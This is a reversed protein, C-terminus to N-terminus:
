GVTSFILVAKAKTNISLQYEGNANTTTGVSTGKLQVSVGDLPNGTEDTVRGKIVRSITQATTEQAALKQTVSLSATSLVVMSLFLQKSLSGVSRRCAISRRM